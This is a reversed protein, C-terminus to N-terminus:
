ARVRRRRHPVGFARTDVIRHAWSYGLAQLVRPIFGDRTPIFGDRTPIFGDERITLTPRARAPTRQRRLRRQAFAPALPLPPACLLSLIACCLLGPRGRRASSLPPPGALPGPAGPTLQLPQAACYAPGAGVLPPQIARRASPLVRSTGGSCQQRFSDPNPTQSGACTLLYTYRGLAPCIVAASTFCAARRPDRRSLVPAPSSPWLWGYAAGSRATARERETLVRFTPLAPRPPVFIPAGRAARHYLFHRSCRREGALFTQIDM